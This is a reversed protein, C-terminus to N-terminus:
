GWKHASASLVSWGEPVAVRGVSQAADVHLPVGADACVRAAEAVPQVTGVEHSASILTALAVGPTRVAEAWAGGDLRGLRDVPVSVASGGDAVHRRAAYLVASHEIASHVLTSGARRRGALGGLVAAHVSTTGNATFFIEDPRVRLVDAVTARAADLLQRARRARSYLRAPDAWGDEYAASLAQRVVPHPPAATAADFYGSPESVPSVTARPVRAPEGVPPYAVGPGNM